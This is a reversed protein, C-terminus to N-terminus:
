RADELASTGVVGQQDEAAREEGKALATNVGSAWGSKLWTLICAIRFVLM